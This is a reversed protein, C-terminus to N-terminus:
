LAQKPKPKIPFRYPHGDSHIKTRWQIETAQQQQGPPASTDPPTLDLTMLQQGPPPSTKDAPPIAQDIQSLQHAQDYAEQSFDASKGKMMVEWAKEDNIWGNGGNYAISVAKMLEYWDATRPERWVHKLAVPLPELQGFRKRLYQADKRGLRSRMLPEYWQSEIQRKMTRQTDAVAGDVFMELDAYANARSWGQIQLSLMDKPVGLGGVIAREQSDLVELMKALDPKIDVVTASWINETVISKGPKIQECFDDIISQVTTDNTNALKSRDLLYLAIGAWIITLAETLDERVIKDHLECAKLIPEIDSLGQMDGELDNLTFYLVEEPSYFPQSLSGTGEYSYGKLNWNKDILPLIQTSDLPVLRAPNTIGGDIEFAAHGHIPRKITAIRWAEDANVKKNIEDVYNKYPQYPALLTKEQEDTMDEPPKTLELETDFGEKTTWFALANIGRRVLWNRRYERYFPNMGAYVDYYPSYGAYGYETFQAKAAQYPTRLMGARVTPFRKIHGLVTVGPRKLMPDQRPEQKGHTAVAIHGAHPKPPPPKKVRPRGAGKRPGGWHKDTAVETLAVTADTIRKAKEAASLGNKETL